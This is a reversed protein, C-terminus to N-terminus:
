SILAGRRSLTKYLFWDDQAKGAAFGRLLVDGQTLSASDFPSRCARTARLRLILGRVIGATFVSGISSTNDKISNKM